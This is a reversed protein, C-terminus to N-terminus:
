ILYNVKIRVPSLLANHEEITCYMTDLIIIRMGKHRSMIENCDTKKLIKLQVTTMQDSVENNESLSWGAVSAALGYLRQYTVESL